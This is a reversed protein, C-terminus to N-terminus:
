KGVLFDIVKKYNNIERVVAAEKLEKNAVTLFQNEFDNRFRKKIKEIETLCFDIVEKNTKM